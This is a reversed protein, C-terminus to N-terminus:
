YRSMPFPPTLKKFPHPTGRISFIVETPARPFFDTLFNTREFIKLQSLDKAELIRIKKPEVHCQKTSRHLKLPPESIKHHKLKFFEIPHRIENPHTDSLLVFVIDESFNLTNTKTKFGSLRVPM